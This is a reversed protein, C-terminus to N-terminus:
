FSVSIGGSLTRLQTYTYPISSVFGQRPDLGKRKAFLALNDGSFYIRVSGLGYKQVLNKPLTYGFTLALVIYVVLFVGGGNKAALYPFRWINGLGVASGAAALVFGLSGKFSGREKNSNQM